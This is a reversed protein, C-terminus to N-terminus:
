DGEVSWKPEQNQDLNIGVVIQVNRFELPVADLSSGFTIEFHDDWISLQRLFDGVTPRCDIESIPEWQKDIENLEIQLLDDGRQKFRYFILPRKRYKSSGFTIETDSSQKELFTRLKGVTLVEGNM